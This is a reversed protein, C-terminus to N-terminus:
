ISLCLLKIFSVGDAFISKNKELLYTIAYHSMFDLLSDISVCECCIKCM